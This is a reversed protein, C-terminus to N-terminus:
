IYIDNQMAYRTLLAMDYSTSYNAIGNKDLGSPNVFKTNKMWGERAKKNMMLVFNDVDGGVYDAIMLAADNGSRLMLGYLLDILKIEEGVSIYIGSGYSSLVSENVVVIDDLKNAEIALICTM